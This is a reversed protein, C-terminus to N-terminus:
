IERLNILKGEAFTGEFEEWEGKGVNRYFKVIGTFQDCYEWRKNHKKLIGGFKSASEDWEADYNEYWLTGDGRLEYNDLAQAPTDKTQYDMGNYRINDFMGM